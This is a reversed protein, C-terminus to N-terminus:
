VRVIDREKLRATRAKQRRAGPPGSVKLPATSVRASAPRERASSAAGGGGVPKTRAKGAAAKRSAGVSPSASRVPSSPRVPPNWVPASRVPPNWVPSASRVPSPSRAGAVSGGAVSSSGAVGGGALEVLEADETSAALTAAQWEAEERAADEAMMSDRIAALEERLRMNEALASDEDEDETTAAGAQLGAEAQGAEAQGAEAQGLEPEEGGAADPQQAADAPAPAFSETLLSALRVGWDDGDRIPAGGDEDPAPTPSSRPRPTKARKKKSSGAHKTQADGDGTQLLADDAAANVAQARPTRRKSPPHSKEPVAACGEGGMGRASWGAMSRPVPHKRPTPEIWVIEEAFSVRRNGGFVELM